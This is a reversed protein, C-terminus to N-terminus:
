PPNRRVCRFGTKLSWTRWPSSALTLLDYDSGASTWNAGCVMVASVGNPDFTGVFEAVNSNGHHLGSPTALESHSGVPM